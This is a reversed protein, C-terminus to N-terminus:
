YVMNLVEGVVEIADEEPNPDYTNHGTAWEEEMVYFDIEPIAGSGWANLRADFWKRWRPAYLDSLLGQWERHSYDHLHGQESAARPGWTTIQVRANWEMLDSEATDKGCRRADEIWRGVRFDPLTGVLRDQLYILSVFSDTLAKYGEKDGSRFAAEIGAMLKRGHDAVAQRTVDVLDYRYNANDALLPAAAYLLRAAEKVDDTSYYDTSAAWASVNRPSDSPRACFISERTGQQVSDAPCNYVSNALITWAREVLSDSDINYRMRAYRKVWEDKDVKEATWPLESMLEYMVPNNEIGEMTLGVGALLSDNEVAQRYNDVLANMKGYLGVNGGFNLLMCLLRPHGGYNEHAGWGDANESQLDLVVVDGAPLGAILDRRPNEQWGQIVWVADPNARKMADLIKRGASALDVGDSNGGEHFPDASMYKVGGFLRRLEEYYMDAIIDFNEDGPQLFAPRRFGSWLGPDSVNLGLLVAADSPVMGSYGPVVPQMGYEEMRDVIRRGLEIDREYSEVSNPGGWGELNNMLWWARFGPGAVFEGVSQEDYGLRLLVNRWVGAMGEIVLPMNIGHLAMWDIERQWREWDWFATSYSHTCYNLYYRMDYPTSFTVTEGVQPLTDPLAASMNNWALPVGATYKLYQNIGYAAEVPSAGKVVPFIGAQSIEVTGLKMKADVEVIMKASLGPDIRELLSDLVPTPKAEIVVPM